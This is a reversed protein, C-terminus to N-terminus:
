SGIISQILQQTNLISQTASETIELMGTIKLLENFFSKAEQTQSYSQYEKNTVIHGITSDITKHFDNLGFVEYNKLNNILMNIQTQIYLKVNDSAESQLIASLRDDLLQIVENLINQDLIKYHDYKEVIADHTTEILFLHETNYGNIFNSHSTHLHISQFSQCIPLSWKNYQKELFVTGICFKKIDFVQQHLKSINHTILAPNEKDVEFFEAFVDIMKRNALGHARLKTLANHLKLAQNDYILKTGM